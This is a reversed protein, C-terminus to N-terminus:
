FARHLAGPRPLRVGTAGGHRARCLPHAAQRLTLRGGTAFIVLAKLMEAESRTPGKETQAAEAQRPGRRRM